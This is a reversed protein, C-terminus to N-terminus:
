SLMGTTDAQRRARRLRVGAVAALLRGGVVGAVIALLPATLVALSSSRDQWATVLAAIALAVAAGELASARWTMRQPVRRLLTVIRTGFVRRSALAASAYAVLLAIGVAAVPHWTFALSTGPALWVAAIIALVIRSLLLGLPAALTILLLVEGLGFAGVRQNAYGHLRALAIEPGREETLAAVLVMLVAVALVLLPVAGVPVTTAIADQDKRIEAILGPLGSRLSMREDSLTRTATRLDADLRAAEATGVDGLNLWYSVSRRVSTGPFSEVDATAGAFVADLNWYTNHNHVDGIPSFALMSPTASWYPNAPDEPTYLGVVKPATSPPITRVTAMGGGKSTRGEDGERGLAIPLRDGVAVKLFAAARASLMVEDPANPCRGDVRVHTCVDARYVLHGAFIQGVPLSALRLNTEAHIAKGVILDKVVGGQSLITDARAAAQNLDAPKEAEAAPPKEENRVTPLQVVLATQQVTGQDLADRAVSEEAGRQYSPVMAAATTAVTAMLLVLLSRGARYRLGRWLVTWSTM